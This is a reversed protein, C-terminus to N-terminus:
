PCKEDFFAEISERSIESEDTLIEISNERDLYWGTCILDRDEPTSERWTKALAMEEIEEQTPVEPTSSSSVTVTQTSPENSPGPLMCGPLVIVTALVLLAPCGFRRRKM